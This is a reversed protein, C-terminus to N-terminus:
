VAPLVAQDGENVHGLIELFVAAFLGLGHIVDRDCERVAMGFQGKKLHQCAIGLTHLPDQYSHSCNLLLHGNSTDIVETPHHLNGLFVWSELPRQMDVEATQM